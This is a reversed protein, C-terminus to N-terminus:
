PIDKLFWPQVQWRSIEQYPSLPREPIGRIHKRVLMFDSIEWLPLLYVESALDHHLRRLLREATSWDGAQDLSILEQRLWDPLHALSSVKAQRDLTLCPWLDLQPDHLKVERYLMDWDAPQKDPNFNEETAVDVIKIVIGLNKWQQALERAAAQVIADAPVGLRLEPLTNGLEKKAALLMSYALRTDTRHPFVLPNSASHSLAFPGSTLRGRNAARGKLVVEALIKKRDSGYVLARRLSNNKLAANRPHFQILHTTPLSMEFLGADPLRAVRELDWLAISPILSFEGRQWGQFLKDFSSYRREVIEALYFDKGSVPQTLLRRYRVSDETVQERLFRQRHFQIAGALPSTTGLSSARSELPVPFQFLSEPRLPAFRFDVQLEFPSLSRVGEIYNAFREDFQPHNPDLRTGIEAVIPGSTVVESGEWPPLQTKLRFLISRGLDTPDWDQIFATHYRVLKGDFRGPEFIKTELLDRERALAVPTRSSGTALELTGVTLRQYRQGLRRHSEILDPTDPWLRTAREMLDVASTWLGQRELNASEKMSDQALQLLKTSWREVIFHKSFCQKLRFLYHRVRRFDGQNFAAQMLTDAAIGMQKDLEPYAPQLLHVQEFQALAQETQNQKLKMVGEVFKLRQRRDALGPWGPDRQQLATLLEFADFAREEDLLMDTRRLMLDEYHIIQKIHQTHLKYEGDDEDNKLYVVNIKHLERRREREENRASEDTGVVKPLPTDQARRVRELVKELTAPRPKVPEVEFTKNGRILVIWDVAPGKLLRALSPIPKDELVPLQKFEESDDLDAPLPEVTEIPEAQNPASAGTGNAVPSAPQTKTQPPQSCLKSQFLLCVLLSVFLLGVDSLFPPRLVRKVGTM